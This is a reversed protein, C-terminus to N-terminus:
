TSSSTTAAYSEAAKWVRLLNEGLIKRIDEESYGRRLLGEVLNPYGSADKLGDPLSDGVGDAPLKWLEVEGSEDSLAILSRGDPLFGAERYRVGERRTVEVFRGQKRPAVFVRGRATLVLRDGDPSIHAHSRTAGVPFDCGM